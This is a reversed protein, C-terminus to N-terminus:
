ESFDKGTITINEKGYISTEYSKKRCRNEWDYKKHIKRWWSIRNIREDPNNNNYIEDYRKKSKKEFKDVIFYICFSSGIVKSIDEGLNFIFLFFYEGFCFFLKSCKILLCWREQWGSSTEFDEKYKTTVQERM